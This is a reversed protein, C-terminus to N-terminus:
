DASTESHYQEFFGRCHLPVESGDSMILKMTYSGCDIEGRLVSPGAPGREGRPGPDGCEGKPGPRGARGASAILQWGDGPCEGPDDCRAIFSSGGLAVIDLYKYNEGERYTGCIKPMKADRGAAAICAWDAHPPARGTDCKALYTSGEHVVINGQYHVMDAVYARVGEITGRPGAEGRPGPQGRPGEKGDVPQHIQAIREAVM